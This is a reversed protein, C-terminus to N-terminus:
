KYRRAQETRMKCFNIHEKKAQAELELPPKNHIMMMPKVRSMVKDYDYTPLKYKFKAAKESEDQDEPAKSRGYKPAEYVVKFTEKQANEAQVARKAVDLSTQEDSEPPNM